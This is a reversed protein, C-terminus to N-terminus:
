MSRVGVNSRPGNEDSMTMGQNEFFQEREDNTDNSNVTKMEKETKNEEDTELLTLGAASSWEASNRNRSGLRDSKGVCVQVM